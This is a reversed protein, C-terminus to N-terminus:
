IIDYGIILKAVNEDYHFVERRIQFLDEFISVGNLHALLIAGFQDVLKQTSKIIDMRGINQM